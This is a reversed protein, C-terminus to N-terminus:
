FTSNKRRWPARPDQLTDLLFQCWLQAANVALRAHRTGLGAPTTSRGHGTGYNNRLEAVSQAITHAAGLTKRVTKSGDPGPATNQPHIGLAEEALTALKPLDYGDEYRTGTEALVVKATSEMLEKASGIALAADETALANSIRDLHERITRGDRLDALNPQPASSRPMIRGENDLTYGDAVFLRQLRTVIKDRDPMYDSEGLNFLPTLAQEFVAVARRTESPDDWNVQNLYQQFLTVREGGVPEVYGTPQQFGEDQWMNHIDRLRTASMQDRIAGRLQPSILPRTM